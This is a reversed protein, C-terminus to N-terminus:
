NRNLRKEKSLQARRCCQAAAQSVTLWDSAREGLRVTSQPESM